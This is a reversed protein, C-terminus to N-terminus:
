CPFVLCEWGASVLADYEVEHESFLIVFHQYVWATLRPKNLVSGRKSDFISPFTPNPLLFVQSSPKLISISQRQLNNESLLTVIWSTEIQHGQLHSQHLFWLCDLLWRCLASDWGAEGWLRHASFWKSSWVWIHSKNKFISIM